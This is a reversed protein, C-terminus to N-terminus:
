RAKVFRVISGDSRGTVVYVGMPLGSVDNRGPRVAGVGRGCADVVLGVGSGRWVYSGTVTTQVSRPREVTITGSEAVGTTTDRFVRVTAGVSVYVRGDTQNWCLEGPPEGCDFVQIVTDARADFVTVWPYVGSRFSSYAKGQVTDCVMTSSYVAVSDVVQHSGCDLAGLRYEDWWSQLYMKNPYPAFCLGNLYGTIRAAISDGAPTFAIVGRWGGIYALGNVPNYCWDWIYGSGGAGTWMKSVVEDTACDLAVITDYQTSCLLRNTLPHWMMLLSGDQQLRITRLVTDAIGDVITLRGDDLGVYLKNSTVSYAVQTPCGPMPITATVQDSWGDVAIVRQGVGCAVYVRNANSNWAQNGPNEPVPLTAIVSNTAGNIISVTNDYNSTYVKDSTPNWM